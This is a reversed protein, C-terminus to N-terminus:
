GCRGMGHEISTAARLSRRRVVCHQATNRCQDLSRRLTPADIQYNDGVYQSAFPNFSPILGAAPDLETLGCGRATAGRSAGVQEQVSREFTIAQMPVTAAKSRGGRGRRKAVSDKDDDDLELTEDFEQDSVWGTHVGHYQTLASRLASAGASVM